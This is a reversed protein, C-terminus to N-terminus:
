FWVLNMVYQKLTYPLHATEREQTCEKIHSTMKLCYVSACALVFFQLTIYYLVLVQVPDSLLM